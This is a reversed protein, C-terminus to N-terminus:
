LGQQATALASWYTKERQQLADIGQSLDGSGLTLWSGPSLKRTQLHICWPAPVYAHRLYLATARRDITRDYGPHVMLAPLESGFLLLPQGELSRAISYYLPKEGFRDRSLVLRRDHRDWLAFAFMGILRPLASAVGWASVAALLTETDSHGRWAPALCAQELQQRIELHNYIEGNFVMQWRGCASAMPQQGATSLDLIALRRHCLGVGVNPDSWQGCGDPGRHELPASMGELLAVAADPSCPRSGLFGAIGCM